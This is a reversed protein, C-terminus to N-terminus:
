NTIFQQYFSLLKETYSTMTVDNHTSRRFMSIKFLSIYRFYTL